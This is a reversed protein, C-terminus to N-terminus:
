GALKGALNRGDDGNGDDDDEMVSGGSRDGWRLWCWFWWTVWKGAMEPCIGALSRDVAALVMEGGGHGGGDAAIVVAWGDDGDGYGGEGRGDGVSTVLRVDVMAVKMPWRLAGGGCGVGR